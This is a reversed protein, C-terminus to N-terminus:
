DSQSRTYLTKCLSLEADDDLPETFLQFQDQKLSFIEAGAWFYVWNDLRSLHDFLLVIDKKLLQREEDRNYVYFNELAKYVKMM